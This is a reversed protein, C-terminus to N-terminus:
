LTKAFTEADHCQSFLLQFIKLESFYYQMFDQSLFSFVNLEELAISFKDVDLVYNGSSFCFARIYLM